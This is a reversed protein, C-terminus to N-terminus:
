GSDDAPYNAGIYAASFHGSRADEDIRAPDRKAPPGYGGAGPTVLSVVADQTIEMTETKAELEVERGDDM